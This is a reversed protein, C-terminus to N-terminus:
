SIIGHKRKNTQPLYPDHLPDLYSLVLDMVDQSAFVYALLPHLSKSLSPSESRRKAHIHSASHLFRLVPVRRCEKWLRDQVADFDNLDESRSSLHLVKLSTLNSFEAPLTCPSLQNRALSLFKLKVLNGLEGPICGDLRNRHLDLVTLASLAGLQKPIHNSLGQGGWDLKTVRKKHITVGRWKSADDWAGQRLGYDSSKGMLKWCTLLTAKDHELTTNM